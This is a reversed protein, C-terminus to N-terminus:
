TRAKIISKRPPLAMRVVGFSIKGLILMGTTVTMQCYVPSVGAPQYVPSLVIRSILGLLSSQAVLKGLQAPAFPAIQLDIKAEGRVVRHTGECRFIGWAGSTIIVLPPGIVRTTCCSVCAM